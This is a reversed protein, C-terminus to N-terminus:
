NIRKQLEIYETLNAYCAFCFLWARLLNLRMKTSNEHLVCSNKPLYWVFGPKLMGGM